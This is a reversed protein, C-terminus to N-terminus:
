FFLPYSDPSSEDPKSYPGIIPGQSCSLLSEPETFPQPKNILEALMLKEFPSWEICNTLQDLHNPVIQFM